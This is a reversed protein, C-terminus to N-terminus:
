YLPSALALPPSPHPHDLQETCFIVVVSPMSMYNASDKMCVYFIFLIWWLLILVPLTEYIWLKLSFRWKAFVVVFADCGLMDLEKVSNHSMRRLILRRLNQKSTVFLMVVSRTFYQKEIVNNAVSSVSSISLTWHSSQSNNPIFLGVCDGANSM